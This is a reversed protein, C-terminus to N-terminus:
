LDTGNVRNGVMPSENDYNSMKSVKKSSNTIAAQEEVETKNVRLGFAMSSQKYNHVSSNANPDLPEVVAPSIGPSISNSNVIVREKSDLLAENTEEYLEYRSSSERHNVASHTHHAVNAKKTSKQSSFLGIAGKKVPRVPSYPNPEAKESDNAGGMTGAKGSSAGGM